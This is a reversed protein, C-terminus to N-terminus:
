NYRVSRWRYVVVVVYVVVAVVVVFVLCCRSRAAVDAANRLQWGNPSIFTWCIIIVTKDQSRDGSSCRGTQPHPNIQKLRKGKKDNEERSVDSNLKARITCLVSSSRLTYDVSWM